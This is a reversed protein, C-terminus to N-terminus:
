VELPVVDKSIFTIEINYSGDDDFKTAHRPWSIVTEKKANSRVIGSLVGSYKALSVLLRKTLKILEQTSGCLVCLLMLRKRAYM